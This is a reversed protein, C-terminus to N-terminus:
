KWEIVKWKKGDSDLVVAGDEDTRFFRCGIKVLKDITEQSPHGFKNNLGMSMIAYSPHVDKLYEMTSSSSSGHHGVKLVDSSLSDGYLECIQKEAKAEADGSLLLKSQGYVIKLVLSQNNLNERTGAGTPVFKGSPHLVFITAGEYGAITDGAACIRDTLHLSDILYRCEKAIRSNASSGAEIVREVKFHRLIYPVGGIHDSHPHTIVLTNINYIRQHQLFPAIFRSGADSHMNLPGADVLLNRSDPFEIFTADGQGVDLFTVQLTPTSKWWSYVGLGLNAVLIFAIVGRRWASNKRVEFLLVLMLYLWFVLWLGIHLDLYAFSLNGGWRALVIMLHTLLKLLAIYASGIWNSILFVFLTVFGEIMIIGLLPVALLNIAVGILSLKQFYYITLPMTGFTAAISVVISTLLSRVLVHSRVSEPLSQKIADLRPIFYALGGISAFSLQFGADFLMRADWLLLVIAALGLVQFVDVKREFIRAGVYLTGMVVARVIPVHGGALFAFYITGIITFISAWEKGFRLLKFIGYLILMVFGVHLGAIALVHMIGANVFAEKMEPEIEAREGILLGKLLKAEEGGVTRDLTAGIWDRVPDVFITKLSSISKKGVVVNTDGYVIFKASIGNLQMYQRLDSEYPNKVRPLEQLLGFVSLDNGLSIKGAPSRMVADDYIGVSVGGSVVRGVGEIWLSEADVVYGVHDSTKVSLDTVEGKLRALTGIRSAYQSVSNNPHIKADLTIEAIGLFVILLFVAITKIRDQTKGRFILLTLTFLGVLIAVSMIPPFLVYWGVIIGILLPILLKLSPRNKFINSATM